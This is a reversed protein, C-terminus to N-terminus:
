LLESQFHRHINASARRNAPRALGYEGLDKKNDDVVPIRIKLTM